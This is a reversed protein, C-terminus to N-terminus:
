VGKWYIYIWFSIIFNRRVSLIFSLNGDTITHKNLWKLVRLVDKIIDNFYTYRKLKDNLDKPLIPSSYFGNEKFIIIEKNM